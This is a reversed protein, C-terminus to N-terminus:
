KKKKKLLKRHCDDCVVLHEEEEHVHTHECDDGKLNDVLDKRSLVVSSNMLDRVDKKIKDKSYITIYYLAYADYGSVEKTSFRHKVIYFEYNQSRHDASVTPCKLVEACFAGWSGASDGQAFKWLNDKKLYYTAKAKHWYIRNAITEADQYEEVLSGAKATRKAISEM